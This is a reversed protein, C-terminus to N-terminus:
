LERGCASCFRSGTELVHGVAWRMGPLRLHARRAASGSGSESRDGAVARDVAKIAALAEAAATARLDHYDDADLKGTAYDQEVDRLTLLPSGGEPSLSLRSTSPGGVPHWGASSSHIRSPGLSGSGAILIVGFLFTLHGCRASRCPSDVSPWLAIVAGAVLVLGGYWIWGVLPKVLVQLDPGKPPRNPM